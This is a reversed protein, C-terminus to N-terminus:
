KGHSVSKSINILIGLGALVVILSSGGYSLLPMPVGTLPILAVMAAINMIVQYAIWSTIGLSLLKGFPDETRRAIRFGRWIVLLFASILLVAGIFGIEEGIIAFISDTNAEPLYEYKQRSSGIGVGFLGGSGLAITAQHIHYSAGLPDKEPNFFTTLRAFRYPSAVAIGLVGLITVPIMVAFQTLPAGSFFYMTIATAAIVLTTGLDPELIILGAIMGILILFSILRDKEKTSFWASLYIVLSLKALEAPQLVTFGLNIWRKAGLAKIGVGPIFVVLLLFVTGLLMPLALKKYIRYDIISFIFFVILGVAFWKLQETLYYYQNGFDRIAIAVSSDYVMLLGFGCLLLVIGILLWDPRGSESKHLHLFKM